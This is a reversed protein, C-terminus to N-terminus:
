TTVPAADSVRRVPLLANVAKEVEHCLKASTATNSPRRITRPTFWSTRINSSTATRGLGAYVGTGIAVAIAVVQIWRGRLDRAAWRLWFAPTAMGVLPVGLRRGPRRGALGAAMRYHRRVGHLEVMTPVGPRHGPHHGAMRTAASM